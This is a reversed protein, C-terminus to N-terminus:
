GSRVARVYCRFSISFYYCTGENFIVYWARRASEKDSTWIYQQNKDFLSDIFLERNKFSGSKFLDRNKRTSEMLSMAEELTPLRWDVYGAFSQNNLNSIYQRAQVHSMGRKSGSQQWTLGTTEDLILKSNGCLEYRHRVGRGMWYWDSAFFGNKQLMLKVADEHLEDLPQYRLYIPCTSRLREMGLTLAVVLQEFSDTQFLDVWQFKALTEPVRCEELRVPIFYIDSDLKQRQVDFAERIEEQIVGRKDVSNNSLCVLFFPAKRITNMLVQKWDEGPLINKIDMFPHFGALSLKEYLTSVVPADQRAYCLFIQAPRHM